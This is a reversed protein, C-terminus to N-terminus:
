KRQIRRPKVRENTRHFQIPSEPIATTAISAHTRARLTSRRGGDEIGSAAASRKKNTVDKLKPNKTLKKPPPPPPPMRHPSSRSPSTLPPTQIRRSDMEVEDLDMRRQMHGHQIEGDGEMPELDEDEDEDESEVVHKTKGNSRSNVLQIPSKSPSAARRPHPSEFSASRANSPARPPPTSPSSETANEDPNEDQEMGDEAELDSFDGSELQALTLDAASPESGREHDSDSEGGDLYRSEPLQSTLYDLTKRGWSTDSDFLAVISRFFKRYSFSDGRTYAFNELSSLAFAAQFAAYALTEKTAGDPMHTEAHSAKSGVRKGDIAAMKGAFICVFSRVVLRGRFLGKLYNNPNFKTDDPYLFSPWKRHTIVVEGSNVRNNFDDPDNQYEEQYDIPCLAAGTAHHNFGRESKHTEHLPPIIVDVLPNRPLYSIIAKKLINIDSSRADTIFHDIIRALDATEQASSSAWDFLAPFEPHCEVMTTRVSQEYETPPKSLGHEEVHAVIVRRLNAFPTVGRAFWRFKSAMDLTLHGLEDDESYTERFGARDLLGLLKKDFEGLKPSSRAKVARSRGM